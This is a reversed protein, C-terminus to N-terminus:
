LSNLPPFKKQSVTYIHMNTHEDVFLGFALAGVAKMLIPWIKTQLMKLVM